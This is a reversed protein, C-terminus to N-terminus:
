LRKCDVGNHLESMGFRDGISHSVLVAKGAPIQCPFIAVGPHAPAATRGKKGGGRGRRERGGEGRRGKRRREGGERWM